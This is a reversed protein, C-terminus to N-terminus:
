LADVQAQLADVQAQLADVQAQLEGTDATTAAVRGVRGTSPNYTLRQTQSDTTLAANAITMPSNGAIGIRGGEAPSNFLTMLTVWASNDQSAQLRVLGAASLMRFAISGAPSWLRLHTGNGARVSQLEGTTQLAGPSATVESNREIRGTTANWVLIPRGTTTEDLGGDSVSIGEQYARLGDVYLNDWQGLTYVQFRGGALFAMDGEQPIPNLLDREAEDAYRQLTRDRIDNGWASAVPEGATVDPLEPM